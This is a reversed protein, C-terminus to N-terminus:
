RPAIRYRLTVSAQVRVEGPQVPTSAAEARNVMLGMRPMPSVVNVGGETVESVELLRVGLATAMANAKTRAEAVAQQLARMRAPLDDQLDFNLGEIRNAGATTGADIVKGVLTLNTVEVQVTNSARYAVIRPTVPPTNPRFEQQSYVPFLSIGSTQIKREEIGVARIQQLARQVIENVQTQAAAATDAQAEAGLRVVARDPTIAVESNGNVTLTPKVDGRAVVVEQGQVGVPISSIMAMVMLNRYIKLM